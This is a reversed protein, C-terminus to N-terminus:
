SWVPQGKYLPTELELPLNSSLERDNPSCVSDENSLHGKSLPEVAYEYFNM